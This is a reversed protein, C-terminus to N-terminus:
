SGGDARLGVKLDWAMYSTTTQQSRPNTTCTKFGALYETTMTLVSSESNEGEVVLLARVPTSSSSGLRPRQRLM